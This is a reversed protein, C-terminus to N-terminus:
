VLTGLEELLEEVERIHGTLRSEFLHDPVPFHTGCVFTVANARVQALVSPYFGAM